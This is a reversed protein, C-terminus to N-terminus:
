RLTFRPGTYEMCQCPESYGYPYGAVAAYRRGPAFGGVPLNAIAFSTSSLRELAPMFSALNVPTARDLTEIAQDFSFFADCVLLALGRETASGFTVGARQMVDLCRKQGPGSHAQTQKGEPLDLRPLWGVGLSGVLQRHPVLTGAYLQAAAITTLGYRPRYGQGEASPAFFAMSNQEMPLVHTVGDARFRLVIGQIESVAQGNGATSEPFHWFRVGEESVPHGAAKLAPVLVNKVVPVWSPQDPVVIGIKVPQAAGPRGQAHDWATFYRQAVLQDVLNRAAKDMTPGQVDYLNPSIRFDNENLTAISGDMNLVGRKALCDRLQQDSSGLVAFVKKDETFASCLGQSKQAQTESSNADTEHFVPVLTRGAVGGTRNIEKAVAEVVAKPDGQTAATNGLAAQAQDANPAYPFGVSITKDTVGPGNALPSTGAAGASAGNSASGAGAAAPGGGVAGPM